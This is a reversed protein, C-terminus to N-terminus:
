NQMTTTCDDENITPTNEEDNIMPTNDDVGDNIYQKIDDDNNNNNIDINNEKMGDDKVEEDENDSVDLKNVVNKIDCFVCEKDFKPFEEGVHENLWKEKCRIMIDEPFIENGWEMGNRNFMEKVKIGLEFYKQELREYGDKIMAEREKIINNSEEKVCYLRLTLLRQKNTPLQLQFKIYSQSLSQQQQQQKDNCIEISVKSPNSIILTFMKEVAYIDDIMTFFTNLEILENMSLLCMYTKLYLTSTDQEQMTLKLRGGTTELTTLFLTNSPFEYLWQNQHQQPTIILEPTPSIVSM